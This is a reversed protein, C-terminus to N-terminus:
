WKWTHTIIDGARLFPYIELRAPSTNEQFHDQALFFEYSLEYSRPHFCIEYWFQKARHSRTKSKPNNNLIELYGNLYLSMTQLLKYRKYLKVLSPSLHILITFFSVVVVRAPTVVLILLQEYEFTACLVKCDFWKTGKDSIFYGNAPGRPDRRISRCTFFFIFLHFAYSVWRNSSVARGHAVISLGTGLPAWYTKGTVPRWHRIIHLAPRCARLCCHRRDDSVKIYIYCTVDLVYLPWM